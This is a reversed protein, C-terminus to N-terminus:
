ANWLFPWTLASLFVARYSHTRVREALNEPVYEWFPLHDKLATFDKESLM